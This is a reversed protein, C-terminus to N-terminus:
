PKIAVVINMMTRVLTHDPPLDHRQNDDFHYYANEDITFTNGTEHPTRLSTHVILPQIRDNPVLAESPQDESLVVIMGQSALIKSVMLTFLHKFSPTLSPDDGSVEGFQRDTQNVLHEITGPILAPAKEIISPDHEVSAVWGKLRNGPSEAQEEYRERAILRFRDFSGSANLSPFPIAEKPLHRILFGLNPRRDHFHIFKGGPQLVRDIESIAVESDAIVDLVNLALVGAQSGTYFPLQCIDGMVLAANPNNVHNFDLYDVNNDIGVYGDKYQDPLLRYLEGTGSGVELLPTSPPLARNLVRGVVKQSAARKVIRSQIDIASNYEIFRLHEPIQPSNLPLTDSM